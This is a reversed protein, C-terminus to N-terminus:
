VQLEKGNQAAQALEDAWNRLTAGSIGMEQAAERESKGVSRLRLYCRAVDEKTILLPQAVIAAQQARETRLREAEARAQALDQVARAATQVADALEQRVTALAQERANQQQVGAHLAKVRRAAAWGFGAVVLSLAALYGVALSRGAPQQAFTLLDVGQRGRFQAQIRALFEAQGQFYQALGELTLLFLMGGWFGWRARGSSLVGAFELLPVGLALVVTGLAALYWPLLYSYFTYTGHATIGQAALLPLLFAALQADWYISQRLKNM